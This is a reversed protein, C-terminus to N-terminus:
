QHRPVEEAYVIPINQHHAELDLGQVHQNNSYAAGSQPQMQIVQAEAVHIYPEQDPARRTLRYSPHDYREDRRVDDPAVPSKFVARFLRMVLSVVAAFCLCPILLYLFIFLVVLAAPIEYPEDCYEEADESRLLTYRDSYDADRVNSSACQGYVPDVPVTYAYCYNLRPDDDSVQCYACGMAVCGTCDKLADTNTTNVGGYQRCYAASYAVYTPAITPTQSYVRCHIILLCLLYLLTM